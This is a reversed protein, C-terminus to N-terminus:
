SKSAVHTQTCVNDFSKTDNEFRMKLEYGNYQTKKKKKGDNMASESSEERDWRPLNILKNRTELM